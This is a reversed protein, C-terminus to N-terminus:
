GRPNEIWALVFAAVKQWGPENHLEHYFGEWVKLLAKGSSEAVFDVSGAPSTLRDASGHMVLAPIRLEAARDIISQGAAHVQSFFSTTIRDHVLPDAQYRAIVEPDRSLAGMELGTRQSLTPIIWRILHAMRVKWAPPEFALRLYPASAVVRGLAPRRRIVYNLVLNGGMSHGYLTVPVGPLATEVHDLFLAIDDMLLGYSPTHGRLGQSLGHGRQDFGASAYGHDEWYAALHDYRRSHEGMGHVHAIVGKPLGAPQRLWAYLSLDDSTKLPMESIM